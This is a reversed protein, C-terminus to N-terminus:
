TELYGRISTIPTRFEHAINGTMEQKLQKTKEQRTIDNLIIEFSRDKFINARVSFIKGQRSITEEFFHLGEQELFDQLKQFSKDTLITQADSSSEDAITNLYQLFLGNHFEVKKDASLFCIGEELVQIHQLL